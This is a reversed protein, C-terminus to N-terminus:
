NSPWRVEAARERGGAQRPHRCPLGHPRRHSLTTSSTRARRSLTRCLERRRWLGDGVAVGWDAVQSGFEAHAAASTPSPASSSAPQSPWRPLLLPARHPRCPSSSSLTLACYTSQQLHLTQTEELRVDQSGMHTFLYRFITKGNSTAKPTTQSDCAIAVPSCMGWRTMRSRM